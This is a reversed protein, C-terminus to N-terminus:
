TQELIREFADLYRSDGHRDRMVWYEAGWFLYAGLRTDSGTWRLCENYNDIIREPPCSASARGDPSPPVTISEWPEAQGETV